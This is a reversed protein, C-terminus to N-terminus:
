CFSTYSRSLKQFVPQLFNLIARDHYEDPQQIIKKGSDLLRLNKNESALRLWEDTDTEFEAVGVPRALKRAKIFERAPIESLSLPYFVNGKENIFPLNNLSVIYIRGAFASLQSILWFYGAVDRVNPAVWIWIQDFEEEGMRQVINRINEGDADQGSIESSSEERIMAWWKRREARGEDSFLDQIPGVSYDDGILVIEGDLAEDLDM